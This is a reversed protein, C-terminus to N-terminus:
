KMPIDGKTFYTPDLAKVSEARTEEDGSQKMETSRPEGEKTIAQGALLESSTNSHRSKSYVNRGRFSKKRKM